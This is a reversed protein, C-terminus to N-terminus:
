SYRPKNHTKTHKGAHESVAGGRRDSTGRGSVAPLQRTSRVGSGLRREEERRLHTSTLEKFDKVGHDM